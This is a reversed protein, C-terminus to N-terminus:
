PRLMLYDQINVRRHGTLTIGRFSNKKTQPRQAKRHGSRRLDDYRSAPFRENESLIHGNECIISSGGYVTDMSSEGYGASCYIYGSVTRGSQNSILEKRQSAQDDGRQICLHQCDGARRFTRPILVTPIPTASFDERSRSESRPRGSLSCSTQHSTADRGATNSSRTSVTEATLRATMSSGERPRTTRASSIRDPPSGADRTSSPM